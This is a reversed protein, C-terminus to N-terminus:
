EKGPFRVRELTGLEDEKHRDTLCVLVLLGVVSGLLPAIVWLGSRGKGRAYAWCGYIFSIPIATAALMVLVNGEDFINCQGPRLILPIMCVLMVAAAINSKKKYSQIMLSSVISIKSFNIKLYYM